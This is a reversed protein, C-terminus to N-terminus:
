LSDPGTCSSLLLHHTNSCCCHAAEIDLGGVLRLQCDYATVVCRPQVAWEASVSVAVALQRRRVSCLAFHAGELGVSLSMGLM